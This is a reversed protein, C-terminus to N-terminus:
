YKKAKLYNDFHEKIKLEKEAKLKDEVEDIKSKLEADANKLSTRSMNKIFKKLHKM